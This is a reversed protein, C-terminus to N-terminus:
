IAMGVVSAPFARQDADRAALVNQAALEAARAKRPSCENFRDKLCNVAGCDLCLDMEIPVDDVINHRWFEHLRPFMRLGEPPRDPARVLVPRALVGQLVQLVSM